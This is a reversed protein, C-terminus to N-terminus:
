LLNVFRERAANYEKLLNLAYELEEEELTDLWDTLTGDASRTILVVLNEVDTKDTM